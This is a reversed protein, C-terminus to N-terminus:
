SLFQLVYQLVIEFSTREIDRCNARSCKKTSVNTQLVGYFDVFKNQETGWLNLNSQPDQDIHSRVWVLKGEAWNRKRYCEAVTLITRAVPQQCSTLWARVTANTSTLCFLIYLFNDIRCTNTLVHGEFQGGWPCHPLSPQQKSKKRHPSPVDKPKEFYTRRKRKREGQKQGPKRPM